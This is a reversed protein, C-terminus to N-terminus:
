YREGAANPALWHQSRWFEPTSVPALHCPQCINEYLKAGKAALATDIRPLVDETPWKPSKLGTFGHEVDPQRGALLKEVAFLEDLQASSTVLPKPGGTLNVWALVGLAEGANRVMPQRISGNYQVWTFWSANWIRPFHVPASPAAYNEPRGVDTSFVANGIRN